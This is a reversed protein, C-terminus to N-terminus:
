ISKTERKVCFLKRLYAKLKYTDAPQSRYGIYGDPRILYLCESRARYRQHCKAQPDLLLSGHWESEQPEKIAVLHVIIRDSFPEEIEGALQRLSAYNVKTTSKGEFLLLNHKLGPLLCFLRRAGEVTQVMVDPARDGAKPERNFDFWDILNLKRVGSFKSDEQVIPSTRYSVNLESLTSAILHQLSDFRTIFSILSQRLQQLIPNRLTVMRTAWETATLLSKSVPEREAQYSDLLEERGQNCIVLALKWGLNYADQLGRNMGQGGVPSHSSLADGAVIVRGCRPTAVMRQRISFSSMWLPETIPVEFHSREAVLQQFLNLDPNEPPDANPLLDAIVRWYGDEPLPIAALVGDTHYFVHPENPSLNWGIRVDALLFPNALDVGTYTLHASECVTSRAGDCGILWRARCREQQGDPHSLTATVGDADQELTTFTVPREINVGLGEVCRGLFRETDYQPLCLVFPFFSDIGEISIQGLHKRDSYFNFAHLKRGRAIAEEAIGLDDFIELTRAFVALAKSKKSPQPNKDILRPKINHRALQAALFLGTPGAGVILVDVSM